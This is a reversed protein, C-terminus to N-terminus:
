SLSFVPQNLTIKKLDLSISIEIYRPQYTTSFQYFMQRRKRSNAKKWFGTVVTKKLFCSFKREDETKIKDTFIYIQRNYTKFKEQNEESGM